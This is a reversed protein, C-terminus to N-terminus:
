SLKPSAGYQQTPIDDNSAGEQQSLHADPQSEVVPQYLIDNSSAVDHPSFNADPDGEQQSHCSPDGEPQCHRGTDLPYM